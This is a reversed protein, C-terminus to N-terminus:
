DDSKRIKGSGSSHSNIKSPNGKYVVSGSGAIEADISETAAVHVEGSGAIRARVSAVSLGYANVSGSGAITVKLDRANGEASLSGSGSIECTINGASVSNVRVSGSGSIDVDLGSIKGTLEINGSGAIDASLNGSETQLMISGSGALDLELDDTRIPQDTRVHGSGTVHLAKIQKVTIRIRVDDFDNRSRWDRANEPQIVLKGDEVRTEIRKLQEPNASIEVSQTNGQKLFIKGPIRFSIRDFSPLDRKERSQSYSPILATLLFLAFLSKKM